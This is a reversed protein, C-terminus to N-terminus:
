SCRVQDLLELADAEESSIERVPENLRPERSWEIWWLSHEECVRSVSVGGPRGQAFFRAAPLNCHCLPGAHKCLNGSM